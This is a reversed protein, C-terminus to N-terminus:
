RCCCLFGIQYEPCHEQKTTGALTTNWLIGDAQESKCRKQEPQIVTILVSVSVPDDYGSHSCTYRGSDDGTASLKRWIYSVNTYSGYVTFLSGNKMFVLRGNTVYYLSEPNTVTCQLYINDGTQISFDFQPNMKLVLEPIVTVAVNRTVYTVNNFVVIKWEGKDRQLVRDIQLTHLSTANKKDFATIIFRARSNTIRYGDHFWEVKFDSHSLVQLEFWAPKGERLELSNSKFQLIQVIDEICKLGQYRHDCGNMCTGNIHHCQQSEFCNGCTVSCNTGYMGGSCAKRCKEGEYGPECGQECVGTDHDCASNNLCHGCISNCQEGYYGATCVKQCFHGIWGPHCGYDCEGSIKNCNRCTSNCREECNEGFFYDECKETCNFGQYGRGCGNM